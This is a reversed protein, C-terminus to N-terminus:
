VPGLVGSTISKVPKNQNKFGEDEILLEEKKRVRFGYNTLNYESNEQWCRQDEKM